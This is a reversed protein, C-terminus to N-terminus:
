ANRRRAASQKNIEYIFEVLANDLVEREETEVQVQVSMKCCDQQMSLVVHTIKRVVADISRSLETQALGKANQVTSRLEIDDTAELRQLFQPDPLSSAAVKMRNKFPEEGRSGSFYSVARTVVGPGITNRDTRELLELAQQINHDVLIAQVLESRTALSLRKHKEQLYWLSVVDEKLARFDPSRKLAIDFRADQVHKRFISEFTPYLQRIDSLRM